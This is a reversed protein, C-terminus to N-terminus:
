YINFFVFASSPILNLWGSVNKARRCVIVFSPLQQLLFLLKAVCRTAAAAASLIYSSM